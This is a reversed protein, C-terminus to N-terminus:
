VTDMYPVPLLTVACHLLVLLWTWRAALFSRGDEQLIVVEIGLSIEPRAHMDSGSNTQETMLSAMASIARSSKIRLPFIPVIICSNVAIVESMQESGANDSVGFIKLERM